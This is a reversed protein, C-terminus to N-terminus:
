ESLTESYIKRYAISRMIQSLRQRSVGIKKSLKNKPNGERIYTELFELEKNTPQKVDRRYSSSFKFKRAMDEKDLKEMDSKLFIYGRRTRKHPVLIGEKMRKRLTSVSTGFFESLDNLTLEEEKM